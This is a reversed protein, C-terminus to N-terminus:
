PRRPGPRKGAGSAPANNTITGPQSTGNRRVMLALRDGAPAPEAGSKGCGDSTRNLATRPTDGAPSRPGIRFDPFDIPVPVAGAKEARSEPAGLNAAWGKQADGGGRAQNRGQAHV